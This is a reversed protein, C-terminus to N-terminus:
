AKAKQAFTRAEAPAQGLLAATPLALGHDRKVLAALVAGTERAENCLAKIAAQAAERPMQAALHFSFAEAHILGTGDDMNRAMAAPNPTIRTALDAALALARATSVCLQPLTLWETFWAAGDRQQQHTAAGQMLGNLAVSQRSLAVLVSPGVPNQKQPMTSSAGAGAIAVEAIGSQTYLILDAGMKGLIAMTQAMWHSFETLPTRDSHWTHGPDALGLATALDARVQPGKAGMASLTGIAGSLSVPFHLKALAQRQHLLPRGWEAVVAGFSTPTAIQGYSRGPMATEAHAEALAALTAILADLRTAWLGSLRKLRLMLATDMIDQSTAGWHVYQMPESAGADKRFAALFAPVPVGNSATAASLASPDISVERSARDIYAAADAPIVGLAGQVRALAGEVLLMARLEASDTFLAQTETDSFLDRYLASDAPAAPM